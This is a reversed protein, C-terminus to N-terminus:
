WRLDYVSFNERWNEPTEFKLVPIMGDFGIVAGPLRRLRYNRGSPSSISLTIKEEGIRSVVAVRWDKKTRVLLRGGIPIDSLTIETKLTDM